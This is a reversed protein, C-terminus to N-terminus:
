GHRTQRLRWAGAAVLGAGVVAALAVAVIVLLHLLEAVAAAVAPGLLAVALIVLVFEGLGSGGSGLTHAGDPHGM